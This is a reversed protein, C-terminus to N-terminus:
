VGFFAREKTGIGELDGMDFTMWRQVEYMSRMRSQLGSM